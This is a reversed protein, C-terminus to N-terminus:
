LVSKGFTNVAQPLQLSCYKNWIYLVVDFSVFKDLLNNLDFQMIGYTIELKELSQIYHLSRPCDAVLLHLYYWVNWLSNRDGPPLIIFHCPQMGYKYGFFISLLPCQFVQSCIRYIYSFYAAMDSMADVGLSQSLGGFYQISVSSWTIYFIFIITSICLM